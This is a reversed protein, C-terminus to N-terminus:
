QTNTPVGGCQSTVCKACVLARSELIDGNEGEDDDLVTGGGRSAEGCVPIHNHADQGAKTDCRLRGLVLCLLPMPMGRM